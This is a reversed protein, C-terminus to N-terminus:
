FSPNGTEDARTMSQGNDADTARKHSEAVPEAQQAPHWYMPRIDSFLQRHRESPEGIM